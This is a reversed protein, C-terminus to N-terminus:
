PKACEDIVFGAEEWAAVVGAHYKLPNPGCMGSSVVNVIGFGAQKAFPAKMKLRDLTDIHAKTLAKAIDFSMSKNVVDGGITALGRFTDDESVINVGEGLDADAIAITFPASGPAKLHKQFWPFQGLLQKSISQVFISTVLQANKPWNYAVSDPYHDFSWDLACRHDFLKRITKSNHFNSWYSRLYARPLTQLASNTM